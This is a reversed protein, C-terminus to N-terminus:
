QDEVHKANKVCQSLLDAASGVENSTIYNYQRGSTDTIELRGSVLTHTMNVTSIKDFAILNNPNGFFMTGAILYCSLM